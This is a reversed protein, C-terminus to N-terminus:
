IGIITIYEAEFDVLINVWPIWGDFSWPFELRRLALWAQIEARQREVQAVSFFMKRPSAIM